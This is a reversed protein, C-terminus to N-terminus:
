IFSWINRFHCQYKKHLALRQWSKNTGDVNADIAPAHCFNRLRVSSNQRGEELRDDTFFEGRTVIARVSLSLTRVTNYAADSMIKDVSPTTHSPVRVENKTDPFCKGLTLNKRQRFM